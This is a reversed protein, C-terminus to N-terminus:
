SSRLTNLFSGSVRLGESVVKSYEHNLAQVLFAKIEAFKTHFVANTGPKYSRFLRRLVKLSNLVPEFSQNEEITQKLEPWFLEFHKDLQDQIALALCSLTSLASTRVKLNKNKIQKDLAQVIVESM